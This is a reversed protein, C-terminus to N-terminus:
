HSNRLNCWTWLIRPLDTKPTYLSYLATAKTTGGQVSHNYNYLSIRSPLSRYFASHNYYHIIIQWIALLLLNSESITITSKDIFNKLFRGENGGRIREGQM